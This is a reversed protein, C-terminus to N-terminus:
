LVLVRRGENWGVVERKVDAMLYVRMCLCVCARDCVCLEM